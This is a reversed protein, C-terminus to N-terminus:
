VLAVQLPLRYSGAQSQGGGMVKWHHLAPLSAQFINSFDARLKRITEYQQYDAYWGLELSKLV